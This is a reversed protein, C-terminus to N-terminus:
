GGLFVKLVWIAVALGIVITMIIGLSWGPAIEFGLFAGFSDIIWDFMGSWAVTQPVNVTVYTPKRINYTGNATVELFEPASTQSGEFFSIIPDDYVSYSDYQSSYSFNTMEDIFPKSSDYYVQLSPFQTVSSDDYAVAISGSFVWESLDYANSLSNYVSDGLVSKIDFVFNGISSIVANTVAYRELEGSMNYISFGGKIYVKYSTTGNLIFSYSRSNITRGYVSGRFYLTSPTNISNNIFAFGASKINNTNGYPDAVGVNMLLYSPSNVNYVNQGYQYTSSYHSTGIAVSSTDYNSTTVMGTNITTPIYLPLYNNSIRVEDENTDFVPVGSVFAFAEMQFFSRYSRQFMNGDGMGVSSIGDFYQNLTVAGIPLVMSLFLISFAIIAIIRKTM